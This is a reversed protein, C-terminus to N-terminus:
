AYKEVLEYKTIWKILKLAKLIKIESRRKGSIYGKNIFFINQLKYLFSPTSTVLLHPPRTTLTRGPNSDRGPPAEGCHPRILSHRCIRVTCMIYYIRPEPPSYFFFQELTQPIFTQLRATTPTPCGAEWHGKSPFIIRTTTNFYNGQDGGCKPSPGFQDRQHQTM